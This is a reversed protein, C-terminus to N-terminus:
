SEILNTTKLEKSELFLLMDVDRGIFYYCFVLFLTAHNKLEPPSCVLTLLIKEQLNFYAHRLTVKKKELANTHSFKM